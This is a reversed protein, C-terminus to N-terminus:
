FRTLGCETVIADLQIDHAQMDVASVKQCAYAVGILVPKHHATRRTFAFHRDYFGGGMGLRYGAADFGVTPILVMDLLSTSIPTTAVTLQQMGWRHKILQSDRDYPYFMMRRRHTSIIQPIFLRCRRRWATNILPTLSLEEGTALYVAIRNGPNLWGSRMLHQTVRESAFQKFSASLSRRRQRLEKRLNHRLPNIAPTSSM